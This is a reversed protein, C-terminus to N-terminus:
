LTSSVSQFQDSHAIVISESPENGLDIEEQKGEEFSLEPQSINPFTMSQQIKTEEREESSPVSPSMRM